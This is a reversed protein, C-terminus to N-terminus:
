WHLCITCAWPPAMATFLPIPSPESNVTLKGRRRSSQAAFRRRSPSRHLLQEDYVVVLLDKLVPFARARWPEIIITDGDNFSRMHLQCTTIADKPGHAVGNIMMGCAGCIGERCDHDFTVPTEGEEILQENLLDLMELFSSDESVDDLEYDVLEGKSKANKQRWIKLHLKM